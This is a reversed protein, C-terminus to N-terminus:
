QDSQGEENEFLSRQFNSDIFSEANRIFWERLTLGENELALYLERKLETSVEVVIRGSNGRAMAHLM